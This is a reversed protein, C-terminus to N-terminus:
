GEDIIEIEPVGYIEALSGGNKLSEAAAAEKQKLARVKELTQELKALPVVAVGDGDGIILDGPSVRAGACTVDGDVEGGSGKHPGRPVAGRAFCAFGLGAIEEADRVAGDVVIGGVGRAKAARAMLGGFVATDTYGQAAIVLVEGPGALSIAAQVASNDAVVCSVTRAQGLIRMGPAISGMAGVMAMGRDLCDSAEAAEVGRWAALEDASLRRFDRRYQKVPM